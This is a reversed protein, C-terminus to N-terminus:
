SYSTLQVSKLTEDDPTVASSKATVNNKRERWQRATEKTLTLKEEVDAALLCARAAQFLHNFEQM